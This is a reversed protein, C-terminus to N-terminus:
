PLPEGDAGVFCALTLCCHPCSLLSLSTLFIYRTAAPLEGTLLRLWVLPVWTTNMRPSCSLSGVIGELFSANSYSSISQSIWLAIDDSEEVRARELSPTIKSSSEASGSPAVKKRAEIEKAIPIKFGKIEEEALKLEDTTLPNLSCDGYFLHIVRHILLM